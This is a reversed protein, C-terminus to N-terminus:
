SVGGSSRRGARPTWWDSQPSSPELLGGVLGLPGGTLSPVARSWFVASGLVGITRILLMMSKSRAVLSRGRRGGLEPVVDSHHMKRHMKVKWIM